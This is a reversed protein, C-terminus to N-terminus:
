RTPAPTPASSSTMFRAWSPGCRDKHSLFVGHSVGLNGEGHDMVVPAGWTQGGDSSVRVHAEETPTNEGGQNFGYSAYLKGKHWALGVGLTWHCGDTDPRQKKIVHFEVGELLPIDAAKPIADGGWLKM